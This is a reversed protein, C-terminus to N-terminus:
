RTRPWRTACISGSPRGRGFQGLEIWRKIVEGVGVEVAGERGVRDFARLLHRQPLDDGAQAVRVAADDAHLEHVHVVQADALPQLVAHLAGFIAAVEAALLLELDELAEGVCDDEFFEDLLSKLAGLAKREFAGFAQDRQQLQGDFLGALLLDVLDHQGHGMAAPEVHQGVDHALARLLDEAFEGIDVGLQVDAAAVHLVM